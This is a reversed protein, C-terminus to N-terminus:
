LESDKEVYKFKGPRLLGLLEVGLAPPRPHSFDFGQAQCRVVPSYSCHGLGPLNYRTLTPLSNGPIFFPFDQFPPASLPSDHHWTMTSSARLFRHALLVFHLPSLCSCPTQFSAHSILLPSHSPSFDSVPPSPSGRHFLDAPSNSSVSFDPSYLAM